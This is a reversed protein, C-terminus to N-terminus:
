RKEITSGGLSPKGIIKTIMYDLFEILEGDSLAKMKEEAGKLGSAPAASILIQKLLELDVEAKFLDTDKFNSNQIQTPRSEALYKRLDFNDM